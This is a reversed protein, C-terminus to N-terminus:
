GYGSASRTRGAKAQNASVVTPAGGREQRYEKAMEAAFAPKWEPQRETLDAVQRRREAIAELRTALMRFARLCEREVELPLLRAASNCAPSAYALQRM